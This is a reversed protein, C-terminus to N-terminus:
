HGGWPRRSVVPPRSIPKTAIYVELAAGSVARTCLLLGELATCVRSQAWRTVEAAAGSLAASITTAAAEAAEAAVGSAMASTTRM